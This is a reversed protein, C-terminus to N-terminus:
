DRGKGHFKQRNEDKQKNKAKDTQPTKKTKKATKAEPEHGHNKLPNQHTL